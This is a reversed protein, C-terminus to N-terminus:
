GPRWSMTVGTYIGNDLWGPAALEGAPLLLRDSHYQLQFPAHPIHRRRRAFCACLDSPSFFIFALLLPRTSEVSGISCASYARKFDICPWQNQAACLWIHTARLLLVGDLFTGQRFCGNAGHGSQFNQPVLKMGDGIKVASRVRATCAAPRRGRFPMWGRDRWVSVHRPVSFFRTFALDTVDRRHNPLPQRPVVSCTSM